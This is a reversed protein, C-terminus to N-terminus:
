LRTVLQNWVFKLILISWFPSVMWTKVALGQRHPGCKLVTDIVHLLPTSLYLMISILFPYYLISQTKTQKSKISKSYKNKVSRRKSKSKWAPSGKWLYRLVKWIHLSPPSWARPLFKTLPSLKFVHFMELNVDKTDPSPPAPPPPLTKFSATIYITLWPLILIEFPFRQLNM